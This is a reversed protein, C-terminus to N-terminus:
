PTRKASAASHVRLGFEKLEEVCFRVEADLGAIDDKSWSKAGDAPFAQAMLRLRTIEAKIGSLTVPALNVGSPRTRSM